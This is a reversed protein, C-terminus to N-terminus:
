AYFAIERSIRSFCCLFHWKEPKQRTEGSLFKRNRLKSQFWSARSSARLLPTKESKAMRPQFEIRQAMPREAPDRWPMVTGLGPFISVRTQTDQFWSAISSVRLVPSRENEAMRPQSEIRQAMPREAPDRWPMGTERCPFMSRHTNTDQFWSASSSVRLVPSRENEAM